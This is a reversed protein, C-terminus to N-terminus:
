DAKLTFFSMAVVPRGEDTWLCIVGDEGGRVPQSWRMLPDPRMTAKVKDSGGDARTKIVVIEYETAHKQLVPLWKSRASDAPKTDKAEQGRASPLAAIAAVLFPAIPRLLDAWTKM